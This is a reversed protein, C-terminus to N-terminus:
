FFQITTNPLLSALQEKVPDPLSADLLIAAQTEKLVAESDIDALPNGRLDLHALNPVQRLLSLPFTSINNNQAVVRGLKPLAALQQLSTLQNDNVHVETVWPHEWVGHLSTLCTGALNLSASAGEVSLASLYLSVLAFLYFLLFVFSLWCAFFLLDCCCFSFYFFVLSLRTLTLLLGFILACKIKCMSWLVCKCFGQARCTHVAHHQYTSTGVACQM